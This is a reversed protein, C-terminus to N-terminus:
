KPVCEPHYYSKRLFGKKVEKGAEIEKGCKACKVM